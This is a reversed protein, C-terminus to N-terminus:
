GPKYSSSDDNKENDPTANTRVISNVPTTESRTMNWFTVFASSRVRTEARKALPIYPDKNLSRVIFPM